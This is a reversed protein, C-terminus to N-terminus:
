NNNAPFPSFSRTKGLDFVKAAAETHQPSAEHHVVAALDDATLDAGCFCPIVVSSGPHAEQIHLVAGFLSLAVHGCGLPCPYSPQVAGPRLAPAEQRSVFEPSAAVGARHEASALHAAFDRVPLSTRLMHGCPCRIRRFRSVGGGKSERPHFRLTHMFYASLTTLTVMHRVRCESVWRDPDVAAARGLDIAAASAPAASHLKASGRACALPAPTFPAPPVPLPVSAGSASTSATGGAGGDFGGGFPGAQPVAGPACSKAPFFSADSALGQRPGTPLGPAPLPAPPGSAPLSMTNLQHWVSMKASQSTDSRQEHMVPQAPPFVPFPCHSPMPATRMPGPSDIWPGVRAPACLSALAAFADAHDLALRPHLRQLSAFVAACQPCGCPQNPRHAYHRYSDSRPDQLTNVGFPVQSPTHLCAGRALHASNLPDAGLPAGFSELSADDSMITQYTFESM